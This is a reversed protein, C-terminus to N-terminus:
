NEEKNEKPEEKETEDADDYQKCALLDIIKGLAFIILTYIFASVFSEVFIGFSGSTAGAIIAIIFQITFIALASFEFIYFLTKGIRNKSSAKLFNKNMFLGGINIKSM